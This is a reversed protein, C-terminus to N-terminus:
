VFTFVFLSCCSQMNSHLIRIVGIPSQHSGHNINKRTLLSCQANTKAKFFQPENQSVTIGIKSNEIVLKGEFLLQM